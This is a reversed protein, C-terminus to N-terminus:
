SVKALISQLAKEEKEMAKEKEYDVEDDSKREDIPGMKENVISPELVTSAGGPKM